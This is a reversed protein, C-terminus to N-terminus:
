EIWFIITMCSSIQNDAINKSPRTDIPPHKRKM